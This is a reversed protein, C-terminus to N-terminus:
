TLSLSTIVSSQVELPMAKEKGTFGMDFGNFDGFAKGSDAGGDSWRLGNEEGLLWYKGNNDLVIVMVDSKSAAEIEQSKTVDWNHLKIALTQEFYVTGNEDNRIPKAGFQAMEIDFNWAFFSKGSDLALASVEGNAKTITDKADSEVAWAKKVGGVSDKCAKVIAATLVCAM